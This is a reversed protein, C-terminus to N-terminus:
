SEPEVTVGQPSVKVPTSGMEKNAQDDPPYGNFERTEGKM